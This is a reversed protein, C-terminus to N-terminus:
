RFAAWVCLRQKWANIVVSYMPRESDFLVRFCALGFALLTAAASALLLVLFSAGTTACLHSALSGSSFREAM